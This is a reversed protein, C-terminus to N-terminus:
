LTNLPLRHRNADSQGRLHWVPTQILGPGSGDSEECSKM